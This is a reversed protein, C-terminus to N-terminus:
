ASINFPESSNFSMLNAMESVFVDILSSVNALNCRFDLQKALLRKINKTFAGFKNTYSSLSPQAKESVFTTQLDFCANFTQKIATGIPSCVIQM